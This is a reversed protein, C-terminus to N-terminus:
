QMRRKSSEAKATEKYLETCCKEVANLDHIIEMVETLDAKTPDDLTKAFTIWNDLKEKLVRRMYFLNNIHKLESVHKKCNKM